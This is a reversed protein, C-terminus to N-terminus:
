IPKNITASEEYMELWRWSRMPRWLDDSDRSAQRRSAWWCRRRDWLESKHVCKNGGEWERGAQVSQCHQIEGWMCACGTLWLPDTGWYFLGQWLALTIFDYCQNLKCHETLPRARVIISNSLSIFCFEDPVQFLAQTSPYLLHQRSFYMQVLRTM